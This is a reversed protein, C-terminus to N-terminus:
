NALFIMVSFKIIKIVVLTASKTVAVYFIQNYGCNQIVYGYFAHKNAGQRTESKLEVM